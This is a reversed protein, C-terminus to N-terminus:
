LQVITQGFMLKHVFHGYCFVIVIFFAIYNRDSDSWFEHAQDSM